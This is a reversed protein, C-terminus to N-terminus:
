MLTINHKWPLQAGLQVFEDDDKYEIYFAKIYKLNCISFRKLNPFSMRLELAINDIFDLLNEFGGKKLLSVIAKLKKQCFILCLYSM